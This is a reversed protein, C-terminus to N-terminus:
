TKNKSKMQVELRKQDEIRTRLLDSYNRAKKLGMTEAKNAWELALELYGQAECVIALNYCARSKTKIDSSTTAMTNWIEASKSWDTRKVAALAKKQADKNTPVKRIFQRTINLYLPAIRRAYIEGANIGANQVQTYINTLNNKAEQSTLGNGENQNHAETVYEDIIIKNINDYIRFSTRVELNRSTYFRTRTRDKKNQDKYTEQSTRNSYTQDSDFMELAAIADVQYSKCLKDIEDWSLPPAVTAGSKSGTLEAEIPKINFRPTSSLIQSFGKIAARRGRKDQGIEEGTLLGELVNKFGNEPVSRDITGITQIHDPITIIAPKLVQLTTTQSCSTLLALSIL